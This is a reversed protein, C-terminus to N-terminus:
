RRMHLRTITGDPGSRREVLDCVRNVLWLGHGGPADASQRRRGALPDAIYGRDEIQCVFEDTTCWATVVGSGDGHGLANAAVESVALVLDSIRTTTLGAATGLRASFARVPALYGNFAVVEADAPPPPLPDDCGPPLRGAGLYYASARRHGDSIVAPHTREADAIYGASLQAIDYLCIVTMPRGRFALNCLAEHRIVESLEAGSRSAWAPEWVCYVHRGPNQDGFSLGAPIIRAPNRGLETMDVIRSGAPPSRWAVSILRTTQRRVAVHLPACSDAAGRVIATVATQDERGSHYFLAAHSFGVAHRADGGRATPGMAVDVLGDSATDPGSM